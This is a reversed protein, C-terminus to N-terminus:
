IHPSLYDGKRSNTVLEQERQRYERPGMGYRQNFIRSFALQDAYGVSAAIVNIKIETEELMAKAKEMRLNVLYEQPSCGVIKKFIATLYSRNVGIYAAMEQIRLKRKYNQAIYDMAMKVYATGPYELSTRAGPSNEQYDKILESFFLMLLGRRKLDNAGTLQHAELIKEIYGCLMEGCKVSRFPEKELFGANKVCEEAKLGNFGVWFYFWPQAKDAEYWATVGPRLVFVDGAELHYIKGKLELTGKGEKIVHLVYNKRRNPGYRYGSECREWGCYLLNLEVLDKQLDELCTYEESNTYEVANKGM